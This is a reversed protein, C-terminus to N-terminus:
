FLVVEEGDFYIELLISERPNDLNRVAVALLCYPGAKGVLNCTEFWEVLISAEDASRAAGAARAAELVACRHKVTDIAEIGREDSSSFREMVMMPMRGVAWALSRVLKDVKEG